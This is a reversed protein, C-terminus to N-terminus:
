RHVSGVNRDKTHNQRDRCRDLQIPVAGRRRLVQRVRARAMSLIEDLNLDLEDLNLDMNEAESIGKLANRMFEDLQMHGIQKNEIASFLSTLDYAENVDFNENMYKGLEEIGGEIGETDMHKILSSYFDDDNKLDGLSYDWVDDYANEFYTSRLYGEQEELLEGEFEALAEPNDALSARVSNITGMLDDIDNSGVVV